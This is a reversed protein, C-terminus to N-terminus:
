GPSESFVERYLEDASEDADQYQRIISTNHAADAYARSHAAREPDVQELEADAQGEAADAKAQQKAKDVALGGVSPGIVGLAQALGQFVGGAQPAQVGQIPAFVGLQQQPEQTIPVPAVVTKQEVVPRPM